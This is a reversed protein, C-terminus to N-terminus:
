GGYLITQRALLLAIRAFITLEQPSQLIKRHLSKLLAVNKRQFYLFYKALRQGFDKRVRSIIPKGVQKRITSFEILFMRRSLALNKQAAIHGPDHEITKEFHNIAKVYKETEHYLLGLKFLCATCMPNSKFARTYLDEADVFREMNKYIQGLNLMADEFYPNLELANEYYKMANEKDKAVKAVNFYMKSTPCTSLCSKYLSENTQWDFGRHVSQMAFSLLVLIYTLKALGPARNVLYHYGQAILTSTGLVPLYINKLVNSGPLFMMASFVLTLCLMKRKALSAIMLWFIVSSYIRRDEVSYIPSFCNTYWDHCLWDPFITTWFKLTWLYQFNIWKILKSEILAMSDNTDQSISPSFNIINVRLYLSIALFAFYKVLTSKAMTTEAKMLQVFIIMPIIMVGHLWEKTLVGLGSFFMVMWDHEESVLLAMLASLSWLLEVRGTVSCVTETLLPHVSFLLASYFAIGNNTEWKKVVQYALLCNISHLLINVLHFITSSNGFLVVNLRFTLTTLPRYPKHSASKNGGHFDNKFTSTWSANEGSVDQNYVIAPLDETLFDGLLCPLRTIASLAGILILAKIGQPHM